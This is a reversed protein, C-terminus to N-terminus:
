STVEKLAAILDERGCDCTKPVLRNAPCLSAHQGESEVVRAAEVLRAVAALHAKLAPRANAALACFEADRMDMEAASSRAYPIILAEPYQQAPGNPTDMVGDDAHWEGQTAQDGAADLATLIDINKM